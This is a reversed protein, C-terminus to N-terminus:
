SGQLRARQTSEIVIPLPVPSIPVSVTGAGSSTKSSEFMIGRQRDWLVNGEIDLESTMDIDMGAITMAQRLESTGTLTIALLARGAIVTDGLVTYSLITRETREGPGQEGRYSVTDVWSDGMEVARGPLAPFFGHAFNLGSMFQSAAETVDPLESVTANGMRDLGFVLDGSVDGEDIRLPAGLPQNIVASLRSVALRVTLSAGALGFTVALDASGLQSLELSQGMASIRVRTTDGYGYVVEPTSPLGYALAPPGPPGGGCAALLLVLASFSFLRHKMRSRREDLPDHTSRSVAERVSAFPYRQAGGAAHGM